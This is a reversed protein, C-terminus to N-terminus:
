AALTHQRSCRRLRWEVRPHYPVNGWAPAWAALLGFLRAELQPARALFVIEFNPQVIVEAEVDHGYDFSASAIGLLYRGIDTIQFSARGNGGRGLRAGGLPILRFRLVSELM